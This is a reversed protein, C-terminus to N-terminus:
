KVQPRIKHRKRRGAFYENYAIGAIILVLGTYTTAVIPEGLIMSIFFLSLFPALYCMQNILAPNTTMRIAMGFCLFPIGMEFLGIYMGSLIGSASFSLSQLVPIGWIEDTGAPALLSAAGVGILLYITGFLFGIFLSADEDAKDKLRDNMMWYIVWLLASLLAWVIGLVSISGNIANGGYSILTLGGLSIAMGIYKRPQIPVGTFVALLVLLLIPWIYNIPQAIQAPLLAYARFLTLYYIVPNVLGLLAFSLWTRPSLLGLSRWKGRVTLWVAFVGLATLAAILVMEYVTLERQAIKFSTAVTSWSLVAVSALTISKHPSSM